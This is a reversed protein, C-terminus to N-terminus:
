ATDGKWGDQLAGQVHAGGPPGPLHRERDREQQRGVAPLSRPPHLLRSQLILSLPSCGRQAPPSVFVGRVMCAAAPGRGVASEGTLPFYSGGGKGAGKLAEQVQKTGSTFVLRWRNGPSATGGIITGWDEGPQPLSQAPPWPLHPHLPAKHVRPGWDPSSNPGAPLSSPRCAPYCPPLFGCCAGGAGGVQMKAQELDRLAAFVDRPPVSSDAAAKRLREVAGSVAPAASSSAASARVTVAHPRCRAHPHLM